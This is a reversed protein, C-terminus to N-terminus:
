RSTAAGRSLPPPAQVTSTGSCALVAILLADVMLGFIGSRRLPSAPLDPFRVM